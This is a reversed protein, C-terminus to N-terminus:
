ASFQPTKELCRTQKTPKKEYYGKQNEREKKKEINERQKLEKCKGHCKNNHLQARFEMKTGSQLESKTGSQTFRQLPTLGM